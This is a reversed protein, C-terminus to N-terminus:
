DNYGPIIYEARCRCNVLQGPQINEGSIPCGESVLYRRGDARRHDDRSFRGGGVHRWYAEKLGLEGCRQREVSQNIKHTQDRAITTAKRESVGYRSQLKQTLTGLDGGAMVADTVLSTVGQQYQEGISTILQVNEQTALALRRQLDASPKFTIGFGARKLRRKLDADTDSLGQRVVLEALAEAQDRFLRWWKIRLRTLATRLATLPNADLAIDPEARRYHARVTQLTDRHMRRILVILHKRYAAELGANVRGKGLRKARGPAILRAM